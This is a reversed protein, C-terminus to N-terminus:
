KLEDLTSTSEEESFLDDGLDDQAGAISPVVVLAAVIGWLAIRRTAM